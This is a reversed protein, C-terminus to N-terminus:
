ISLYFQITRKIGVELSVRSKLGLEFAREISPVYREAALGAQPEKMRKVSVGAGSAEAM